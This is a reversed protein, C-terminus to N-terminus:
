WARDKRQAKCEHQRIGGGGLDLEADATRDGARIGRGARLHLVADLLGGGVDIGGAANEALLDGGFEAVVNGIGLLADRDGVLEGAVADFEDDAM